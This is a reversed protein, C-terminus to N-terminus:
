AAAEEILELRKLFREVEGRSRLWVSQKGAGSERLLKLIKPKSRRPYNWVWLVFELTLQEPCGEAMDPRRGKRYRLSRTVIRWLCVWRSLDLFVVTDCKQIRLKLTGSYNGDLIWSDRDTLETVTQLWEEPEPKVWGPRWFCQDLHTVEINLLAGLRTSFTSKGSGGSGIVLIKRM